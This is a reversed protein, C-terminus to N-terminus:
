ASWKRCLDGNWGGGYSSGTSDALADLVASPRYPKPLFCVGAPLEEARPSHGGSTMIVPVHKHHRSVFRMLDFGNLGGPMDIDTIVADVAAEKGLIAVAELVNSAELVHYGAEELFDALVLRILVEDEVVLVTRQYLAM